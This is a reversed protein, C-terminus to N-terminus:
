YESSRSLISREIEAIALAEIKYRLAGVTEGEEPLSQLCENVATQAKIKKLANAEYVNDGELVGRLQQVLMEIRECIYAGDLFNKGGDFTIVEKPTIEILDDLTNANLIQSFIGEKNKHEPSDQLRKLEAQMIKRCADRLDGTRTIEQFSGLLVDDSSQGADIQEIIRKREKLMLEALQMGSYVGRSGPIENIRTIAHAFSQISVHNSKLVETTIGNIYDYLESSAEQKRYPQPFNEFPM